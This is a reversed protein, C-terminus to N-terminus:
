AIASPRKRWALLGVSQSQELFVRKAARERFRLDRYPQAPREVAAIADVDKAFRHEAHELFGARRRRM